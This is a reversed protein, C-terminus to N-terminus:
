LLNQNLNNPIRNSICRHLEYIKRLESLLDTGALSHELASMMELSSDSLLRLIDSLIENWISDDDEGCNAIKELLIFIKAYPEGEQASERWLDLGLAVTEPSILQLSGKNTKTIQPFSCLPDKAIPLSNLCIAVGNRLFKRTEFPISMFESM